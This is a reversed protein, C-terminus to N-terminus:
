AAGGKPAPRPRAMWAEKGESTVTVSEDLWSVDILDRDWLRHLTDQDCKYPSLIRSGQALGLLAYDASSLKM